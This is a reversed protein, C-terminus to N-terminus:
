ATSAEASGGRDCTAPARVSEREDGGGPPSSASELPGATPTSSASGSSAERAPSGGGPPRVPSHGATVGGLTPWRPMGPGSGASGDSHSHATLLQFKGMESVAGPLDPDSAVRSRASSFAAEVAKGLALAHYFTKAFLWTAQRAPPRITLPPVRGRGRRTSM